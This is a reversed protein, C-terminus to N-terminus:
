HPSLGEVPVLPNFWFKMNQYDFSTYWFGTSSIDTVLFEQRENKASVPTRSQWVFQADDM